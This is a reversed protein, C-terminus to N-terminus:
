PSVSSFHRRTKPLFLIAILVASIIAVAGSQERSIVYVLMAGALRSGFAQWFVAAAGGGLCLVNLVLVVWWTWKAGRAFFGWLLWLGVAPILMVAAWPPVLPIFDPNGRAVLYGLPGELAILAIVVAELRGAWAVMAVLAPMSAATAQAEMQRTQFAAIGIALVASVYLSCYGAATAVFVMPIDKERTLAGMPDFYTLNPAVWAIPRLVVVQDTWRRIAFPYLTGVLLVGACILLTAVQGFRTSAAVAVAVFVLVAMYMLLMGVLLQTRIDAGFTQTFPVVRWEKAVFGIVSIVVTFTALASWVATSTFSWGFFLNGAVAMALALAFAAVGLVIVPWDFPDSAAPMVRHRVTLLLVISCLYYAVTVAAAVGAFKGLVFTARHVPKSIVTLATRGEIERSLVSSASFAAFLLGSILLSGLGLNELMQQDTKHYDPSVTWGSLPVALVLMAFTALLIVLFIPQRITQVFTNQSIAWFKIM